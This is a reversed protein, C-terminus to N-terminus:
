EGEKKETLESSLSHLTDCNRCWIFVDQRDPEAQVIEWELSTNDGCAGCIIHLRAIVM